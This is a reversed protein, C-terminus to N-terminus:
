RPSRKGGQAQERVIRAADEDSFGIWRLVETTHEGLRPVHPRPEGPTRSLKVPLSPVKFGALEAHDLELLMGRAALQPDDMAQMVTRLRGCPVGAGRLKEILEDVTDRAFRRELEECMADRNRLRDVNSQFRPDDALEPADIAVCLQQWLRPNAASMMLQGDKARFVENPAVSPHQNGVRAPARGASQTFGTQNSLTSFLSDLLAIDVLQGLGTRTREYLAHMIGVHAYLGAMYDTLAIPVRVGAGDAFGTAEMLGSEAQVIPDYGPLDRRPGNQGYGTISCHVLAPNRRSTEAYGFGLRDLSGPKLNEIFVDARDLLRGLAETGSKTKLNLAVSKKGRNIGLFYASWQDVFPAWARSDDGLGPEEIKIVEAGMDALHMTCFPGALVRTLDVVLLGELTGM